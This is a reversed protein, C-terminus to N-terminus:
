IYRSGYGCLIIKKPQDKSFSQWMRDPPSKIRYKWRNCTLGAQRRLSNIDVPPGEEQRHEWLPPSVKPGTQDWRYSVMKSQNKWLIILNMNRKTLGCTGEAGFDHDISHWDNFVTAYAHMTGKPIHKQFKQTTLSAKIFTYCVCSPNKDRDRM